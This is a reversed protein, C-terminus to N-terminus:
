FLRMSECQYNRPSKLCQSGRELGELFTYQGTVSVPHTYNYEPQIHCTWYCTITAIHSIYQYVLISSVNTIYKKRSADVRFLICIVKGKSFNKM